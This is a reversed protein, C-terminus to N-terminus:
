IPETYQVDGLLQNLLERALEEKALKAEAAPLIQLVFADGLKANVLEEKPIKLEQENEVLLIAAKGVFRELIADM